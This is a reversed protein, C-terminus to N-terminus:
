SEVISIAQHLREMFASLRDGTMVLQNIARTMSVYLLRAEAEVEGYQNPLYGIGPIFVTDFELGKSSHMTALKISAQTPDYHRSKSDRNIWELPISHQEFHESIAEAMFKSRYLIGMDNWAMGQAHLAQVQTAVYSVEERFSPLEILIPKPGHRGATEPQVLIPVDDDEEGRATLLERAFEYAITLIEETNRYNIKLIKTRRGQAKIGVSKFTFTPKQAQDYISQADDYLVLLSDTEPDVMKVVLQYWAPKFDHGEDVLVAGYQGAPVRGTDVGELVRQVLEDWYASGSCQNRSPKALKYKWLMDSCWKHINCVTVQKAIGAAHLKQRLMSALAVNYCLVLIPKSTQEALHICRFVLIMTKGSGAVGHIVRHGDGLSRALQEQELDMVRIIDPIGMDVEEEHSSAILDGIRIQPFIHWRIRDVQTKTLPEGFYYTCFNWLRQQFDLADVSPVMEDQCIVLHAPMVEELMAELSYVQELAKRKINPLVVGYSYPCVLKGAYPGDIQVLMPDRQLQNAIALAYERAQALPHKFSKDGELTRVVFSDPTIQQIADLSWDKVELIIIGRLPHLLIFDPYRRKHGVPVNYWLLYDDELKEQLRKALRREGSTMSQSCSAFAPILVPQEM